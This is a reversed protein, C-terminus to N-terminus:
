NYMEKDTARASVATLGSIAGPRTVARSLHHYRLLICKKAVLMLLMSSMRIVRGNFSQGRRLCDKRISLRGIAFTKGVEPPCRINDSLLSRAALSDSKSFKDVEGELSIAGRPSLLGRLGSDTRWSKGIM